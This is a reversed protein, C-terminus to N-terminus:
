SYSILIQTQKHKQLFHHKEAIIQVGADVVVHNRKRHAESLISLSPVVEENPCNRLDRHYWLRSWHSRNHDDLGAVVELQSLPHHISSKCIIKLINYKM